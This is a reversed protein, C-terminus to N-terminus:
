GFPRYVQRVTEEYVAGDRLQAAGYLDPQVGPVHRGAQGGAHDPGDPIEAPLRAAGRVLDSGAAAPRQPPSCVTRSFLNNLM